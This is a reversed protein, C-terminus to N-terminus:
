LKKYDILNFICNEASCEYCDMNDIVFKIAEKTSYVTWKITNWESKIIVEPFILLDNINVDCKKDKM